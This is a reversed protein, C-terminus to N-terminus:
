ISYFIISITNYKTSLHKAVRKKHTYITYLFYDIFESVKYSNYNGSGDILYMKVPVLGQAKGLIYSYGTIQLVHKPKLNKTVKTDYVEYSYNGLNSKDKTFNLQTSPEHKTEIKKVIKSSSNFVKNIKKVRNYDLENLLFTFM